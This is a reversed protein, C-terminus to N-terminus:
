KLSRDYKCYSCTSFPDEGRLQADDIKKVYAMVRPNTWDINPTVNITSNNHQGCKICTWTM